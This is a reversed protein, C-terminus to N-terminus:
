LIEFLIHLINKDDKREYQVKKALKKVMFIGLGGIERDEASLTIDPDEQKTPDYAIGDDEFTLTLENGDKVVELTVYRAQSYVMLNAGIEDCVVLIKNLLKQNIEWSRCRNTVFEAIKSLSAMDPFVTVSKHSILHDMKISLMTIDDFQAADGVFSDVDDMVAYCIEKCSQGACTDLLEKLREEGYLKTDSDTAETVGDTYLYIEDGPYLQLENKRYNIGEMGGLVMNPRSKLYEYKGAAHKILPPNHGANAFDLMGNSLNLCGLWATVFMGADNGKCLKENTKTLIEHVELGSEAFGKIYTKATMMFMAAPIGKGSVDAVIFILKNNDFLYFDYFDGGVEKATRMRAYIDFEQRNPYAPFVSPLSSHQIQKAFALEQDIRSEAEKIYHKLAEVTQNIDDSLSMFEQNDRVSVVEGLNGNTIKDLSQNIQNIKDVILKKILVYIDVFIAAMIFVEMFVTLYVAVNRSFMAESEPYAALIVYNEYVSYMCLVEEGYAKASFVQNESIESEDGSSEFINTDRIDEGEHGLRDGIIKGESTCLILFGNKGIHTNEGFKIIENESPASDIVNKYDEINLTLLEEANSDAIRTQLVNTFVCTALFAVAIVISLFVSFYQILTRKEQKQVAKRKEFVSIMMTAAMVTIGVALVMVGACKEVFDYARVIDSINTLFIMLMHFVEATIGIMFAYFWTPKKNTFLYERAIAGFLGAVITSVTCAVRTYEASSNWAVCIWREFGGILGAIIGSPGGLLLGACLPAADRVNIIAGDIKVGFETAFIACLGFVIGIITQKVWYNLKAFRTRKELNWFTYCMLIPLVMAVGLLLYGIIREM